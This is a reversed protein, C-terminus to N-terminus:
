SGAVIPLEKCNRPITAHHATGLVHSTGTMFFFVVDAVTEVRVIRRWPPLPRRRLKRSARASSGALATPSTDM